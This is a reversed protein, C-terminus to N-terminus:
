GIALTCSPTSVNGFVEIPQTPHVFTVSLRCVSLRFQSLLYGFTCTYIVCDREPLFGLMHRTLYNPQTITKTAFVLRDSILSFFYDSIFVSYKYLHRDSTDFKTAYAEQSRAVSAGDTEISHYTVVTRTCHIALSDRRSALM